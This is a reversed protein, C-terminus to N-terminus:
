GDNFAFMTMRLTAYNNHRCISIIHKMTCDGIGSIPDAFSMRMDRMAVNRM